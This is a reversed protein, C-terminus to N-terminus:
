DDEEEVYSYANSIGCNESTLEVEERYYAIVPTGTEVSEYIAKAVKKAVNICGHSGSTLYIDDGFSSRWSADHIGVNYAFPMFYTVDSEYDEGVLTAPSQKYVIKFIGDPSGNGKNLNGSVIDGDVLLSGDVYYWIHQNTYDIEIYTDGIEDAGECFARQSYTIERTVDEGSTIDSKLQEAEGEKDVVWGYDGGGIEITDGDSTEFERADGYTNYASALSQVYDAIADDNLTVEYDDSVDVFGLLTEKAITVESGMVEYTITIGTYKEITALADTLVADTSFVDPQVFDDDALVLSTQAKELAEEVKELIDDFVLTTGIVESEIYYGDDGCVLAADTPAIMNDEDFCEFGSLVDCLADEDYSADLVVETDTKKFILYPWAFANQGSLVAEITGGSSVDYDIQGANILYSEDDTVTLTLVYSDAFGCLKEEAAAAGLLGVDTGNIGAGPFFMNKFLIVGAAYVIVIVGALAAAIIIVIKKVSLEKKKKEM